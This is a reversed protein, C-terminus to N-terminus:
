RNFKVNIWGETIGCLAETINQMANTAEVISKDSINRDKKSLSFLVIANDANILESSSFVHNKSFHIFGSTEKYLDNIWPFIRNLQEKLYWDKMQQGTRDKLDSIKKGKIIKLAFDHPDEVLWAAYFRLINDLHCRILHYAAISNEDRILQTFGFILHLARDLVSNVMLDFPYHVERNLSKFLKKISSEYAELKIM